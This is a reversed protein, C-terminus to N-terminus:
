AGELTVLVIETTQETRYPVGWVSCGSSVVMNYDGDTHLGYNAENVAESIWGGPFIQGGHTHGSVQLDVGLAAAEATDKPQHDMLIIPLTPDAQATLSELPARKGSADKRGILHFGDLTVVEDELVYIGAAELADRMQNDTNLSREHNGFVFYVGHAADLKALTKYAADRETDATSEDFLDGCILIYDPQLANTQAVVRELHDVRLASGEHMDSLIAISRPGNKYDALAVTYETINIRTANVIGYATVVVAIMLPLLGGAYLRRWIASAKQLAPIKVVLAIIDCIPFILLCTTMMGILVAGLLGMGQQLWPIHPLANGSALCLLMLAAMGASIGWVVPKKLAKGKIKVSGRFHQLIYYHLAVVTLLLIGGVLMAYFQM